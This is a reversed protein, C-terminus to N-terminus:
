GSLVTGLLLVRCQSTGTTSAREPGDSEYPDSEAKMCVGWPFGRKFHLGPCGTQVTPSCRLSTLQDPSSMNYLPHRVFTKKCSIM